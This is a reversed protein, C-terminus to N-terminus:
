HNGRSIKPVRSNGVGGRERFWHGGMGRTELLGRNAKESFREMGGRRFIEKIIGIKGVM